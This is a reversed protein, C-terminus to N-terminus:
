IEMVFTGATDFFDCAGVVKDDNGRLDGDVTLTITYGGYIGELDMVVADAKRSGEMEGAFRFGEYAFWGDGHLETGKEADVDMLFDVDLDGTETPVVCVGQWQGLLSQGCATLPLLLLPLWRLM